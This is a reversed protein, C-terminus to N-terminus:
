TSSVGPSESPGCRASPAVSRDAVDGFRDLEVLDEAGEVRRGAGGELFPHLFRRDRDLAAALVKELASQRARGAKVSNSWSKRTSSVWRRATRWSKRLPAMVKRASRPRSPWSASGSGCSWRPRGAGGGRSGRCRLGRGRRGSRGPRTLPQGEVPEFLERDVGVRQHALEHRRGFLERRGQDGEGAQRRLRFAEEFPKAGTM